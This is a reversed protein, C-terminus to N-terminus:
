KLIGEVARSTLRHGVLPQSGDKQGQQWLALLGDDDVLVDVYRSCGTGYPSVFLPRLKSLRTMKPFAEDFGYCAGGLEECSHGRPRLVGRPNQDLQRVCELGDYFYVSVPPLDAFAGIRPVPMRCTVRTGAVDWAPGRGIMQWSQVAFARAGDPRVAVGTNASTWSFPHSCFMLVTAGDMDFVVPDKVHLYGPDPPPATLVPELTRADLSDVSEGKIVDITWMGTGPKQHEGVEEPYPAEKETSIYLECTGSPEFRLATGEISLVKNGAIGLDAKSWSRVKHFLHGGDESAFIAAELGREGAELGTTSDGFNRYRGVLWIVGDRDRVANGGGFWFGPANRYPAVAVAAAQQDMLALALDRLRAENSESLM